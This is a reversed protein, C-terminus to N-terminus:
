TLCGGSTSSLRRRTAATYSLCGPRLLSGGRYSHPSAIVNHRQMGPTNMSQGKRQAIYQQASRPRKRPIVPHTPIQSSNSLLPEKGTDSHNDSKNLINFAQQSGAEFLERTRLLLRIKIGDSEVYKHCFSKEPKQM